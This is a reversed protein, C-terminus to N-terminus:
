SNSFAEQSGATNGCSLHYAARLSCSVERWALSLLLTTMRFKTKKVVNRQVNKLGSHTVSRREKQSDLLLLFLFRERRAFLSSGRKSGIMVLVTSVGPSFTLMSLFMQAGTPGGVAAAWIDFSIWALFAEWLASNASGM